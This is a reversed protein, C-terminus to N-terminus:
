SRTLLIYVDVSTEFHFNSNAHLYSTKIYFDGTVTLPIAKQRRHNGSQFLGCNPATLQDVSFAVLADSTAGDDGTTSHCSPSINTLGSKM